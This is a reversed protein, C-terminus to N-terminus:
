HGFQEAYTPYTVMILHGITSAGSAESREKKRLRRLLWEAHCIERTLIM